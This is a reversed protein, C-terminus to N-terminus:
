LSFNKAGNPAGTNPLRCLGTEVPRQFIEVAGQPIYGQRPFVQYGGQPLVVIMDNMMNRYLNSNLTIPDFPVMIRIGFTTAVPVGGRSLVENAYGVNFQVDQFCPSM